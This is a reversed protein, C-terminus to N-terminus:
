GQRIPALDCLTPLSPPHVCEGRASWTVVPGGPVAAGSVGAVFGAFRGALHAM